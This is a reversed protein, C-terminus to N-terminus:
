QWKGSHSDSLGKGEELRKTMVRRRITRQEQTMSKDGDEELWQGGHSDSLGHGKELRKAVTRRRSLRRSKMSNADDTKDLTSNMRGEDVAKQYSTRTDKENIHFIDHLEHVENKGTSTAMLFSGLAGGAMFSLFATNRSFVPHKKPIQVIARIKTRTADSLIRDHILRLSTHTVYGTAAGYFLGTFGSKWVDRRVDAIKRVNM